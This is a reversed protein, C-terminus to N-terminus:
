NCYVFLHPKDTGYECSHFRIDYGDDDDNTAYILVGYNPEGNKWNKTAETIDMELWSPKNPPFILTWHILILMLGMWHFIVSAGHLTMCAICAQPKHRVGNNRSRFSNIILIQGREVGGGGGLCNRKGNNTLACVCMM